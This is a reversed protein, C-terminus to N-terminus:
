MVALTAQNGSAWGDAKLRQEAVKVRDPLSCSQRHRVKAHSFSWMSAAAHQATCLPWRNTPTPTPAGASTIQVNYVKAADWEKGKSEDVCQRDASDTGTAPPM